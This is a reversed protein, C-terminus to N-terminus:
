EYHLPAPLRDLTVGHDIDLSVTTFFRFFRHKSQPWEERARQLDLAVAAVPLRPAWAPDYYRPAIEVFGIKHYLSPVGSSSPTVYTDAILHSAGHIVARQYAAKMLRPGLLTRRLDSRVILRGLEALTKQQRFEHLSVLREIPLGSERDPTVRITGLVTGGVQSYAAYIWSYTDASDTTPGADDAGFWSLDDVYVSRRFAAVRRM